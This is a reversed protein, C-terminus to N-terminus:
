DNTALKVTTNIVAANMSWIVQANAAFEGGPTAGAPSVTATRGDLKTVFYTGGASDTASITMLGAAHPGVGTNAAAVETSKILRVTDTGQDNTVRYRRSGKVSTIDSLRGGLGGSAVSIFANAQITNATTVAAALVSLLSGGFGVDGFNIPSTIAATNATSLTINGTTTNVSVVRTPSGFSSTGFFANAVMGAFIGTTVGSSFKVVTGSAGLAYFATVGDVVVNAPKNFTIAPATLYGTGSTTVTVGTVNGNGPLGNVAPVVFAISAEATTGGIPSAAFSITTGASFSNAGRVTVSSVGEGGALSAGGVTTGIFRKKIPRGM